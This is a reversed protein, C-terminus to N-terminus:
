KEWKYFAIIKIIGKKAKINYNYWEELYSNTGPEITTILFLEENDDPFYKGKSKPSDYYQPDIPIWGKEKIYVEVWRHFTYDIGSNREVTGGIFRTPLGGLRALASFLFSYESCSGHGQLYTREADEWKGDLNFYLSKAVTDLVLKIYEEKNKSRKILANSISKLIESNLKLYPDDALYFYLHSTDNFPKNFESNFIVNVKMKIIRKEYPKLEKIRFFAIKQGWEEKIIKDPKPEFDIKKIKQHYIDPPISIYIKIDEAKLFQNEM